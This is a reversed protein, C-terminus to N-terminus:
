RPISEETPAVLFCFCNETNKSPTTNPKTPMGTPIRAPIAPMPIVRVNSPLSMIEVPIIVPAFASLRLIFITTSGKDIIAITSTLMNVIKIEESMGAILADFIVGISAILCFLSILIFAFLSLDDFSMRRIKPYSPSSAFLFRLLFPLFARVIVAEM